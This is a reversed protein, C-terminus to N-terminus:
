KIAQLLYGQGKKRLSNTVEERKTIDDNSRSEIKLNGIHEVDIYLEEENYLKLISLLRSNQADSDNKSFRSFCRFPKNLILSFATGHFSDTMVYEANAILGVFEKPGADIVDIDAYDKDNKNIRNSLNPITVLKLGNKKAFAKIQNRREKDEGLLYSFVYHDNSQLPSRGFHKWHDKTLLFVPDPVQESKIGLKLLIKNALDERVSVIDINTIRKKLIQREENTLMDKGISCSFAVKKGSKVFDLFYNKDTWTPNWVQDGGVIVVDFSDSLSNITTDTTLSTQTFESKMFTDFAKVVPYDPYIKKYQLAGIRHRVINNIFSFPHSLGSLIIHKRQLQRIEESSYNIENCDYGNTKLFTYTSYAQLIGGYNYNRYFLTLIGIRKRQM